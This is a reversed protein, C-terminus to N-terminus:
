ERSKVVPKGKDNWGIRAAPVQHDHPFLVLWDGEVARALFKKREEICRLPDLDFGMVWTPELHHSTPLLDSVYCADETAGGHSRSELHVALMSDTHGPLCEVTVGPAIEALTQVRVPPLPTGGVTTGRLRVDDPTYGGVGNLDIVTLQGSAIVPDYNPGLYSVRDRELQLRGHALEGAACFYRANKFTPRVAGDAHVMTNWGCHDWHLHTNIVHTVEECRVGAAMLSDLLRVQNQHFEQMKPSVKNGLGTEIVIVHGGSRVVVTNLGLMVRNDADALMKRRWLTKPVVGFMAGGDLLFSGDSCQIVELEGVRRRGRVLVDDEPASAPHRLELASEM